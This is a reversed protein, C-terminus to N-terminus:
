LNALLSITNTMAPTKQFARSSPPHDGNTTLIVGWKYTIMFSPWKSPPGLLGFSRPSVIVMTIVVLEWSSAWRGLLPQCTQPQWVKALVLRLALRILQRHESTNGREHGVWVVKQPGQWHSHAIVTSKSSKQGDNQVRVNKM